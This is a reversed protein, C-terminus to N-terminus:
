RINVRWIQYAWSAVIGLVALWRATRRERPGLRVDVRLAPVALALAAWLVAVAFALVFGCLAPNAGLATWPDGRALAVLTHSGGCTPCPIGTAERLPCRAWALFAEPMFRVLLLAVGGAAALGLVIWRTLSSSEPVFRM